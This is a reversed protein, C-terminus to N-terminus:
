NSQTAKNTNLKAKYYDQILTDPIQYLSFAEWGYGVKEVKRNWVQYWPTGKEHTKASLQIASYKGYVLWIRDLFSKVEDSLVNEPDENGVIENIPNRGYRKFRHYVSPIVPGYKWAEPNEDLLPNGTIGLYWGHAIYVLKVLKMPTMTSNAKGHKKIFYNAITIPQYM